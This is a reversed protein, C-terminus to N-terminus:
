LNTADSDIGLLDFWTKARDSKLFEAARESSDLEGEIETDAPKQEGRSVKVADLLVQAMLNRHAQEIDDIQKTAIKGNRVNMRDM